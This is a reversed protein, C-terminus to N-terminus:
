EEYNPNPNGDLLRRPNPDPEVWDRPVEFDGIPTHIEVYPSEPSVEEGYIFDEINRDPFREVDQAFRKLFRDKVEGKIKLAQVRSFDTEGVISEQRASEQGEPKTM